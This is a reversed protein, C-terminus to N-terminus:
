NESKSIMIEHYKAQTLSQINSESTYNPMHAM